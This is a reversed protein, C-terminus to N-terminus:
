LRHFNYLRHWMTSVIADCIVHEAGGGGGGGGISLVIAFSLFDVVKFM